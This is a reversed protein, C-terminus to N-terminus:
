DDYTTGGADRTASLERLYARVTPNLEADEIARSVSTVKGKRNGRQKKGGKPRETEEDSRRGDRSPVRNALVSHIKTSSVFVALKRADLM